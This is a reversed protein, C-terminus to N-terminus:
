SLRRRAVRRTRWRQRRSATHSRNTPPYRRHRVIRLRRCATDVEADPTLRPLMMMSPSSRKPSPTLMAARSPAIEEAVHVAELRGEGLEQFGTIAFHGVQNCKM